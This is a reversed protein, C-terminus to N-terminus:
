SWRRDFAGVLSLAGEDAIFYSGDRRSNLQNLRRGIVNGRRPEGDAFDGNRM